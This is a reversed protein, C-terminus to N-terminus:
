NLKGTIQQYSASVHWFRFKMESVGQYDAIIIFLNLKGTVQQYSASPSFISIFMNNPSLILSSLSSFPTSCRWNAVEIQYLEEDTFGLVDLFRWQWLLETEFGFVAVGDSFDALFIVDM